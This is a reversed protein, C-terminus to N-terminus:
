MPLFINEESFIDNHVNYKISELLTTNLFFIQHGFDTVNNVLEEELKRTGGKKGVKKRNKEKM